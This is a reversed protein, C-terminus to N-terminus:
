LHHRNEGSGRNQPKSAREKLGDLLVDRHFFISKGLKFYGPILEKNLYVWKSSVKLLEAVEKVSLFSSDM